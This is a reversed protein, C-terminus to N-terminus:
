TALALRWGLNMGNPRPPQIPVLRGPRTQWSRNVDGPRAQWGPIMGGPQPILDSCTQRPSDAVAHNHRWSPGAVTFKIRRPPTIPDSCTRRGGSKRDQLGSIAHYAGGHGGRRGDEM